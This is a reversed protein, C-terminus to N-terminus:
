PHLAKSLLIRSRATFNCRRHLFFFFVGAGEVEILFPSVFFWGLVVLTAADRFSSFTQVTHLTWVPEQCRKQMWLLLQNTLFSLNDSRKLIYKRRINFKVRMELYFFFHEVTLTAVWAWKNFNYLIFYYSKFFNPVFKKCLYLFM